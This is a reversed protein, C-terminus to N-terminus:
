SQSKHFALYAVLLPLWAVMFVLFLVVMAQAPSDFSDVLGSRVEEGEQVIEDKEKGEPIHAELLPYFRYIILLGIAAFISGCALYMNLMLMAQM